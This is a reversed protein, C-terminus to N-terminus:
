LSKHVTIFATARIESSAFMPERTMAKLIRKYENWQKKSHDRLWKEALVMNDLSEVFNGNKLGTIEFIENNM